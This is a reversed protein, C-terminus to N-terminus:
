WAPAVVHPAKAPIPDRDLGDVLAMLASKASRMRPVAQAGGDLHEDPGPLRAIRGSRRRMWSEDTGFGTGIWSSVFGRAPGSGCARHSAKTAACSRDLAVRATLSPM